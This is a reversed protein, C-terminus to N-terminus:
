HISPACEKSKCKARSCFFFVQTRIQNEKPRFHFGPFCIFLFCFLPLACAYKETAMVTAGFVNAFLKQTRKGSCARAYDSLRANVNHVPYPRHRSRPGSACSSYPEFSM